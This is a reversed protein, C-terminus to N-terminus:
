RLPQSSSQIGCQTCYVVAAVAGDATDKKTIGKCIISKMVWVKQISKQNTVADNPM